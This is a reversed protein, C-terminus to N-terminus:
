LLSYLFAANAEELPSCSQLLERASPESTAAAFASWAAAGAREGQAQMTFQDKIPRGEFLTRNLDLLEPNEALLRNQIEAADPHLSEVRRAIEDEREACALLGEKVQPDLHENAWKRYRRAALRELAALLLPRQGPEITQLAQGLIKALDPLEIENDKM